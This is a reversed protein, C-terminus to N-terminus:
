MLHIMSATTNSEFDALEKEYSRLLHEVRETTCNGVAILIIKPPHGQAISRQRFDADKSAITFDHIAAHNWVEWDEAERLQLDRVHASGPFLDTLLTVLRPSLNQDFLIKM